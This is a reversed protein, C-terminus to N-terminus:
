ACGVAIPLLGIESAVDRAVHSREAPPIMGRFLFTQPQRRCTSVSLGHCEEIKHAHDVRLSIKSQTYPIPFQEHSCYATRTLYSVKEGKVFRHFTHSFFPITQTLHASLVVDFSCCLATYGLWLKILVPGPSRCAYAILYGPSAWWWDQM